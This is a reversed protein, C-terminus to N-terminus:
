CLYKKMEEEPVMGGGTAWVIHVAKENEALVRYKEDSSVNVSGWMGALASPELRINETKNLLKLLECMREDTLTYCGALFPEIIKGAFGSARGVALGDAATNGSIGIDTVSIKNHLGTSLGLLM